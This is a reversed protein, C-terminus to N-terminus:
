WPLHLVGEEGGMSEAFAIFQSPNSVTSAARTLEESAYILERSLEVARKIDELSELDAFADARKDDKVLAAQDVAPTSPRTVDCDQWIAYKQGTSSAIIRNRAVLEHLVRKSKGLAPLVIRMYELGWWGVYETM